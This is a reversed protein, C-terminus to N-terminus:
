IHGGVQNGTICHHHYSGKLTIPLLYWTNTCKMGKYVTQDNKAEQILNKQVFNSSFFNVYLPTSVGKRKRSPGIRHSPNRFGERSDKEMSCQHLRNHPIVAHRFRADPLCLETFGLRNSNNLFCLLNSRQCSGEWIDRTRQQCQRCRCVQGAVYVFCSSRELSVCEESTGTINSCLKFM